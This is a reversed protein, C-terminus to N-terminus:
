AIRSRRLGFIRGAKGVEREECADVKKLYRSFQKYASDDTPTRRSVRLAESWLRSYVQREATTLGGGREVELIGKVVNLAAKAAWRQPLKGYLTLQVNCSRLQRNGDLLRLALRLRQLLCSIDSPNCVHLVITLNRIKRFTPCEEISSYHVMTPLLPQERGFIALTFPMNSYFLSSAEHCTQKCTRLHSATGSHGFAPVCFTSIEHSDLLTFTCRYPEQEFYLYDYIRLRLELPLSLLSSESPQQDRDM